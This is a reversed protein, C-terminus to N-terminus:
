FLHRDYRRARRRRVWAVLSMVVVILTATLEIWWVRVVAMTRDVDTVAFTEAPGFETDLLLKEEPTLEADRTVANRQDGWEAEIGRFDYEISGVTAAPDLACSVFRSDSLKWREARIGGWIRTTVAISAGWPLPNSALTGREVVGVVGENAAAQPFPPETPDECAGASSALLMLVPVAIAAM